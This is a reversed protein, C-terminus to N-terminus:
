APNQELYGSQQQSEALESNSLSFLPHCSNLSCATVVEDSEVRGSEIKEHNGLFLTFHLFERRYEM